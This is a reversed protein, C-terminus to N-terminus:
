RAPAQLVSAAWGSAIVLDDLDPDPTRSLFLDGGPGVAYEFGAFPTEFLRHQGLIRFGAATEVQVSVLHQDLGLYFLEDGVPSWRPMRGGNETVRWRGSRAGLGWVFM